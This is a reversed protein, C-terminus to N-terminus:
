NLKVASARMESLSEAVLARHDGPALEKRIIRGAVEVALEAALDYVEHKAADAALQIERRAREVMQAGDRRAQEQIRRAVEEANRRGAEVIAAAEQRAAEIKREYEALLRDAEERERQANELAARIRAERENLAHLIPPWAYKGLVVIVLGFVVLTIVANGITGAFIDPQEPVEEAAAVPLAVSVIVAFVCVARM